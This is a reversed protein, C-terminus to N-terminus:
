RGQRVTTLHLINGCVETDPDLEDTLGADFEAIAKAALKELAALSRPSTLLEDWATDITAQEEATVREVTILVEGPPLDLPQDLALQGYEDIRGTLQMITM